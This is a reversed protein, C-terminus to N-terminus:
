SASNAIHKSEIQSAELAIAKAVFDDFKMLDLHILQQRMWEDKLGYLFQCRVFLDAALILKSCECKM